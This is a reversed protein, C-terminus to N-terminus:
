VEKMISRDMIKDMISLSGILAVSEKTEKLWLVIVGPESAHYATIESARVRFEVGAVTIEEGSTEDMVAMRGRVWGSSLVLDIKKDAM